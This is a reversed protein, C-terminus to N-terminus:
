RNHSCHSNQMCISHTSLNRFHLDAPISKSNNLDKMYNNLKVNFTTEVKGVYQVKCLACETLYIIFKSKCNLKHFIAHLQQRQYSQFTNTDIVQKFCVSPKITNCPECEGKRNKSHAKYVKWSKITYNGIVEQLNKNRKLAVFPNNEFTEQLELNIQLLISWHKNIVKRMM